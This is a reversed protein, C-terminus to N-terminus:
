PHTTNTPTSFSQRGERGDVSDSFDVLMENNLSVFPIERKSILRNKSLITRELGGGSSCPEVKCRWFSWGLWELWVNVPFYKNCVSISAIVLFYALLLALGEGKTSDFCFLPFVNAVLFEVTVTKEEKCELVTLFKVNASHRLHRLFWQADVISLVTLVPVGIVVSWEAGRAGVGGFLLVYLGRVSVLLWLPLFALITLSLSHLGSM